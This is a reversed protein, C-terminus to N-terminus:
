PVQGPSAALPSQSNALDLVTVVADSVQRLLDAALTTIPEGIQAARLTTPETVRVWAPQGLGAATDDLAV